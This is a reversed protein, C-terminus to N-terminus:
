LFVRTNSDGVCTSEQSFQSIILFAKKVSYTPHSGRCYANLSFISFVNKRSFFVEVTMTM